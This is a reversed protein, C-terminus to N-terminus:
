QKIIIIEQNPHIALNFKLFNSFLGKLGRRKELPQYIRLWSIDEQKNLIKNIQKETFLNISKLFKIPRKRFFLYIYGFLKPLFTPFVIKYHREFPFKYNPTNIYIFGGSKCVRIMEKLCAKVNVVHELVTFCYVLDFYNDQYPLKEGKGARFKKSDLGHKQAKLKCIELAEPNPEIGYIDARYKKAVINFGGTGCGLNLIKKNKFSGLIKQLYIIRKEEIKEESLRGQVLKRWAPIGLNDKYYKKYYNILKQELHKGM